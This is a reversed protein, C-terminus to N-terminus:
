ILKHHLSGPKRVVICCNEKCTSYAGLLPFTHFGVNHSWPRMANSFPSFRNMRAAMSLLEHFSGVDARGRLFMM